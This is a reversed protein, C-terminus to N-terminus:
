WHQNMFKKQTLSYTCLKSWLQSDDGNSDLCLDGDCNEPDEDDFETEFNVEM